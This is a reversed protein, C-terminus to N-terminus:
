KKAGKELTEPSTAQKSRKANEERLKRLREKQEDVSLPPTAPSPTVQETLPPQPPQPTRLNAPIEPTDAIAGKVRNLNDLTKQKLEALEPVKHTRKDVSWNEDMFELKSVLEEVTVGAVREWQKHPMSALDVKAVSPGPNAAIAYFALASSFFTGGCAMMTSGFALLVSGQRVIRSMKTSPLLPSETSKLVEDSEKKSLLIGFPKGDRLMVQFVRDGCPFWFAGAPNSSLADIVSRIYGKGQGGEHAEWLYGGMFPAVAYWSSGIANFRKTAYGKAIEAADKKSGVGDNWGMIAKMPLLQIIEKAM